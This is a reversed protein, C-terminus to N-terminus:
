KYFVREKNNHQNSLYNKPAVAVIRFKEEAKIFLTGDVEHLRHRMGRIGEGEVIDGDPLDGNNIIELRYNNEDESHVFSIETAGSHMVANTAAERMIESFVKSVKQEKPLLGVRNVNVNSSEFFEIISEVLAESSYDMRSRLDTLVGHLHIRDKSVERDNESMMISQIMSLQHGLYDHLKIKIDLKEKEEAITQVNNIMQEYKEVALTLEMKKEELLQLRKDRETIDEALLEFCKENDIDITRKYFEWSENIGRLIISNKLDIRVIDKETQFEKISDWIINGDRISERFLLALIRRMQNNILTVKGKENFYMLGSGLTNLAEKISFATIFTKMNKRSSRIIIINRLLFMPGSLMLFHKIINSHMLLNHEWLIGVTAFYSSKVIFYAVVAQILLVEFEVIYNRGQEGAMRAIAVIYSQMALSVLAIFSLLLRISVPLMIISIM